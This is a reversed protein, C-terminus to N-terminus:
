FIKSAAFYIHISNINRLLYYIGIRIHRIHVYKNYASVHAIKLNESCRAATLVHTKTILSGMCIRGKDLKANLDSVFIIGLAYMFRDGRHVIRSWSMLRDLQETEQDDVDSDHSNSFSRMCLLLVTIISLVGTSRYHKFPTSFSSM